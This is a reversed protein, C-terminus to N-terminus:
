NPLPIFVLKGAKSDPVILQRNAEDLHLDAASELKALLHKAGTAAEIWWVRGTRVETLYFNAEARDHVIGDASRHDDSVVRFKGAKWALLTGRFFEDLLITGDALEDVGNPDPMEPSHDIAVSVKGDLTIRYVRGRPVLNRADASDLPWFAGDSSTMRSVDGMDTVLITTGDPEVVNDNLYLPPTPFADPGALLTKTGSADVAWVKDFDSTILRGGVFVLGKPDDFGTTFDSVKDGDVVVIKGDGDGKARQTGMLTVFLKGDFGPVVSEPTAGVTISRFPLDAARVGALEAVVVAVCLLTKM